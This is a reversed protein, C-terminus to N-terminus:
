QLAGYEKGLTIFDKDSQIIHVKTGIPIHDFLWQIDEEFLRVCGATVYRGISDPNNNGHLGFTRGDTGEADFGIWRSGLPNEPSGGPIDKKRYYPEKAKVVITFKGEPTLDTSKGTAVSVTKVIKNNEFYALQNNKKNVILYPEGPLPNIGLPWIPSLVTSFLISFMLIVAM